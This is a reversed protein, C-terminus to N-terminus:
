VPHPGKVSIDSGRFHHEISVDTNNSVAPRTNHRPTFFGDHWFNRFDYQGVNRQQTNYQVSAGYMPQSYRGYAGRLVTDPNLAYTFAFRPEWVQRLVVPDYVSSLLLHQGNVPDSKGDPHVFGDPCALAPASSTILTVPQYCFDNQAAAYWFDRGPTNTSPLDYEFREYRAGYDLSLRDNM